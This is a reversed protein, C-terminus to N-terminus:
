EIIISPCGVDAYLVGGEALVVQYQYIGPAGAIVPRTEAGDSARVEVLGGSEKARLVAKGDRFVVLLSTSRPAVWSIQEGPAFHASTPRVTVGRSNPEITIEILGKM